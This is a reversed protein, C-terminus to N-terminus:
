LIVQCHPTNEQLKIGDAATNWSLKATHHTRNYNSVTQLLTGPYSPLTTCETTIQYRRCCHELIVQCHPANQQLKIGDAATNWSLKATHHTRNYNSVTQLLTGPYSPLTTRETTIQYRRCCHELIVQCHPTNQQLKIGDAATNWSLKATHHTRNYNSVTKLLTGPYSPLTTRETTIQYRRCCHELIVQCHPANQQLKIGDAATNWSLKATHHTRNYNSVTKLLTGPYSPLTTCETTIQYRRCCHELIVQCHPANQQLKIGDAATNWSLKATHHTRNYNSVTQLLTGPYSPLTTSHQQLKIRRQLTGPYSLTENTM